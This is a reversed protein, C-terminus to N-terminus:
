ETERVDLKNKESYDIAIEKLDSVLHVFRKLDKGYIAYIENDTIM